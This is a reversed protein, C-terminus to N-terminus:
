FDRLGRVRQKERAALLTELVECGMVSVGSQTVREFHQELLVCHDAERWAVVLNLFSGGMGARLRETREMGPGLRAALWQRVPEFGTSDIATSIRELHGDRYSLTQGLAPVGGIRLGEPATLRCVVVPAENRCRYASLDQESLPSGPRAPWDQAFLAMASCCALFVAARHM